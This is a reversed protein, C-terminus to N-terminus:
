NDVFTYIKALTWNISMFFYLYCPVNWGAHVAVNEVSITVKKYHHLYKATKKTAMKINCIHVDTALAHCTVYISYCQFENHYHLGPEIINHGLRIFCTCRLTIYMLIPYIKKRLICCCNCLLNAKCMAKIECVFLKM